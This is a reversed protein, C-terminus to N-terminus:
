SCRTALIPLRRDLRKPCSQVFCDVADILEDVLCPCAIEESPVIELCSFAHPSGNLPLVQALQFPFHIDFPHSLHKPGVTKKKWIRAPHFTM